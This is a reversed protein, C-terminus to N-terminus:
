LVIKFSKTVVEVKGVDLNFPNENISDVEDLGFVNM